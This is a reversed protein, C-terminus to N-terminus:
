MMDHRSPTRILTELMMEMYIGMGLLSLHLFDGRPCQVKSVEGFPFVDIGAEEALARQTQMMQWVRLGSFAAQTGHVNIEGNSAKFVGDVIWNGGPEDVDHLTQWVFHSTPFIDKLGALFKQADKIWGELFETDIGADQDSLKYKFRLRQYRALDWLGSSVIVLDPDPENRMRELSKMAALRGTM